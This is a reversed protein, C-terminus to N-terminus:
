PTTSRTGHSVMAGATRAEGAGLRIRGITFAALAARPDDGHRESVQELYRLAAEPRGSLRAADAALMLDDVRDGLRYLAAVQAREEPLTSASAVNLYDPSADLYVLRLFRRRQLRRRAIRVAAPQSGAASRKPNAYVIYTKTLTFSCTKFSTTQTKEAPGHDSVRDVCRLPGPDGDM